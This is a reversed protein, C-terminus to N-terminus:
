VGRVGGGFRTNKATEFRARHPFSIGTGDRHADRNENTERPTTPTHIPRITRRFRIM